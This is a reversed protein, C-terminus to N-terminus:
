EKGLKINVRNTLKSFIKDTAKEQALLVTIIIINGDEIIAVLGNSKKSKKSEWTICFRKNKNVFPMGKTLIEKYKNFSMDKDRSKLDNDRYDDVHSTKIINYEEFDIKITQNLFSELLHRFSFNM